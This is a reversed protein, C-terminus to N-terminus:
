CAKTIEFKQIATYITVNVAVKSQLKYNNLKCSSFYITVVWIKIDAVSKFM